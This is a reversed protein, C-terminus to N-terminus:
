EYTSLKDAQALSRKWQELEKYPAGALYARGGYDKVSDPIPELVVRRVRANQVELTTWAPDGTVFGVRFSRKAEGGAPLGGAEVRKQGGFMGSGQGSNNYLDILKATAAPAKQEDLYLSARWELQSVPLKSANSITAVVTPQLGHFDREMVLEAELAKLRSIEELIGDYKAKVPELEAIRKPASERILRSEGQMISRPTGNPYKKNLLEITLDSVAWSYDQMEEQTMDKAAQELSTKYVGIGQATELKRDIGKGSCAALVLALSAVAFPEVVRL